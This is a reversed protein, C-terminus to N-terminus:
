SPRGGGANDDTPSAAWGQMTHITMVLVREFPKNHYQPFRSALLDALGHERAGEDPEYLLHARIWWLKSWDLRDWEEVLLTARPDLELNRERQLLTSTKPKVRDIPVGVFGDDDIAYVVPVSDIGRKPHLTSLVGHDHARLRTFNPEFNM